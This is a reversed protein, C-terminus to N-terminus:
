SSLASAAHTEERELDVDVRQAARALAHRVQDDEQPLVQGVRREEERETGIVRAARDLAGKAAPEQALHPTRRDHAM